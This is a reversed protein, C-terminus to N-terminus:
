RDKRLDALETQPVLPHQHIKFQGVLKQLREAAESLVRANSVTERFAASLEESSASANRTSEATKHSRSNIESLLQSITRMLEEINSFREHVSHSVASGGAVKKKSVLVQNVSAGAMTYIEQLLHSIEDAGKGSDEALSRVENAVVSFSKGAEGAREAEIRANLALLKTQKTVNRILSVVQDVRKTCQALTTAIETLKTM